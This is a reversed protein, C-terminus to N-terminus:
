PPTWAQHAPIRPLAIRHIMRSGQTHPLTIYTFTLQPTHEIRSGSYFNLQSVQRTKKREPLHLSQQERVDLSTVRVRKM